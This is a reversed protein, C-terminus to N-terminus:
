DRLFDIADGAAERVGADRHQALKELSGIVSSDDIMELAGIAEIVVQPAPDELASVLGAVAEPSEAYGLQRAALGRVEPDPDDRLVRLLSLLGQGEPEMDFLADSREEPDASELARAVAALDEDGERAREAPASAPSEAASSPKAPAAEALQSSADRAEDSGCGALGLAFFLLGATIWIPPEFRM